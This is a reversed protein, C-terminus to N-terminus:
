KKKLKYNGIIIDGINFIFLIKERKKGSRAKWFEKEYRIDM